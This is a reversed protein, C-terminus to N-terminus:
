TAARFHKDILEQLADPDAPKTLHQDFGAALAREKDSTQGWGTLAILFTAHGWSERRIAKAVEYGDMGPLGIDIVVAAPQRQRALDLGQEGSNATLVENNSLELLMGLTAAADVNDDIVLILRASDAPKAPPTAPPEITEKVSVVSAPLAIVFRSGRGPGDSHVDIRGGHLRVLEAALSLGIGLGGESRDLTAQIQNFMRFVHPVAEASLGVGSDKVSMLFKDGFVKAELTIRGGADTYKAANTLLNSLVQAIRIGDVMLTLPPEPLIVDLRHGKREIIPGAVDLAETIVAQLDVPAVRLVLEGRTIRASDLLDDLLRAIHATQRAIVARSWRQQEEDLAESELLKIAHRIPAVPNRLEHALTALFEDKRRDAVRLQEETVTLEALNKELLERAAALEKDAKRRESIDKFIFVVGRVEGDDDRLPAASDEISVATGDPRLLATHNALEITKGDRLVQAIPDSAAAGTVENVLQFLERFPAPSKPMERQGIEIAVPNLFTVNGFADTTVVADGISRLTIALQEAAERISRGDRRLFYTLLILLGISAVSTAIVSLVLDHTAEDARDRYTQTAAGAAEDIATAISRIEAMLDQGQNTRVIALAAAINGARALDVTRSLEALKLKALATLQQARPLQGPAVSTFSELQAALGMLENKSKEFPELYATDQTLLYGRQGTEADRLSGLLRETTIEIDRWTRVQLNVQRLNREQAIVIWAFIIIAICALACFLYSRFVWRVPHIAEEGLASQPM